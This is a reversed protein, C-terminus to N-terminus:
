KREHWHCSRELTCNLLWAAASSNQKVASVPFNDSFSAPVQFQCLVFIPPMCPCSPTRGWVACRSGTQYHTSFIMHLVYFEAVVLFFTLSWLWSRSRRGDTRGQTPTGLAFPGARPYSPVALRPSLGRFGKCSAPAEGYRQKEPHCTAVSDCTDCCGQAEELSDLARM